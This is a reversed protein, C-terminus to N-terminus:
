TEPSVIEDGTTFHIIRLKPSVLPQVCGVTALMALAGANVMTGAPLVPQGARMEEGRKRINSATERRIINVRDGDREVYEQMVVRVGDCPLSGGTAIRVAEGAKLLRPKWDAAHITDVIRFAESSDSELVAYGDRTSKDAVPLDESASVTELLIRGCVEALPARVGPLPRCRSFIEARAEDLSRVGPRVEKSPLC